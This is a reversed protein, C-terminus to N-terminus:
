TLKVSVTSLKQKVQIPVPTTYMEKLVTLTAEANEYWIHMLALASAESLNEEDLVTYLRERDAPNTKFFDEAFEFDSEDLDYKDRLEQETKVELHTRDISDAELAKDTYKRHKETGPYNETDVIKTKGSVEEQILEKLRAQLEAEVFFNLPNEEFESQLKEVSSDFGM